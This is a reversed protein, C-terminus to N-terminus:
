SMNKISNSCFLWPHSLCTESSPLISGNSHATRLHVRYSLHSICTRKVLLWSHSPRSVMITRWQRSKPRLTSGQRNVADPATQIWHPCTPYPLYDLAIPEISKIAIISRFLRGVIKAWFLDIGLLVNAHQIGFILYSLCTTWSYVVLLLFLQYKSHHHQKWIPSLILATFKRAISNLYYSQIVLYQFSCIGGILKDCCRMFASPFLIM